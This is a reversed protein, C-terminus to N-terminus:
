LIMVIPPRRTRVHNYTVIGDKNWGNNRGDAMSFSHAIHCGVWFEEAAYLLGRRPGILAGVHVFWLWVPGKTHGEMMRM